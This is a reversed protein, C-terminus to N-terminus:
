LVRFLWYLVGCRKFLKSLLDTRKNKRRNRKRRSRDKRWSKYNRSRGKMWTSLRKRRGKMRFKRGRLM